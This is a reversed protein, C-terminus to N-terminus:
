LQMVMPALLLCAFQFSEPCLVLRGESHIPTMFYGDEFDVTTTKDDMESHQDGNQKSVLFPNM